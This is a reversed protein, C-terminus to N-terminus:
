FINKTNFMFANSNTAFFSQNRLSYKDDATFTNVFLGLIDSIVLVSM